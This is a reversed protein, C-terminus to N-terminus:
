PSLRVRRDGMAAAVFREYAAVMGAPAPDPLPRVPMTPLSLDAAVAGTRVLALLAAGAAVPQDATVERLPTRSLSAKLRGWAPTRRPPEGILTVGTRSQGALGLQVQLMWEAHLALAELAAIPPAGVPVVARAEPDPEPCQRGAPYPLVTMGSPSSGPDASGFVADPDGDAFRDAWWQLFGGASPSGAQVAEHGGQATRVLSMGQAAVAARDPVRDVVTVVAEATGISDAVEGPRRVGAAWAGVQHDHGAVVVPVGTLAPVIEHRLTAPRSGPLAVTPLQELGVGALSALDTDIGPPLPAGAPPLRYAGTRGALTHDTRLDGTLVLHVWDAVGAWYRMQVFAEPRTRRLHRWVVLAPKPSCRVGTAAFLAAAGVEAALQDADPRASLDQWRLWPGSPSGDRDLPCGTEAVSAIGIAAPPAPLRDAAQDLLRVVAVRVGDADPATPTTLTFRTTVPGVDPDGVEVATVKTNTSGVDIGLGIIPQPSTVAGHQVGATGGRRAM